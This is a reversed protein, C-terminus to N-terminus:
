PNPIPTVKCKKKPVGPLFLDCKRDLDKLNRYSEPRSLIRPFFTWRFTTGTRLASKKLEDIVVDEYKGAHPGDLSMIHSEAYKAKDCSPMLRPRAVVEFFEQAVHRPMVYFQDSARLTQRTIYVTGGSHGVISRSFAREQEQQQQQQQQQQLELDSQLGRKRRMRRIMSGRRGNRSVNRGEGVWAVRPAAVNM